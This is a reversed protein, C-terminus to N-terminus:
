PQGRLNVVHQFCATKRQPEGRQAACSISAGLTHQYDPQEEKLRQTQQDGSKVLCHVLRKLLTHALCAAYVGCCSVCEIAQVWPQLRVEDLGTAAHPSSMHMARTAACARICLPRRATTVLPLDGQVM